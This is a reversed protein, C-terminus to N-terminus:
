LLTMATDLESEALDAVQDEVALVAADLWPHVAHVPAAYDVVGGGYLVAGDDTRGTATLAGTLRPPNAADLILEAAQDPLSEGLARVREGAAALAAPLQDLDM